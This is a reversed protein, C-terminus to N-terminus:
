AACAMQQATQQAAIEARVQDREAAILKRLGRRDAHATRLDKRSVTEGYRTNHWELWDVDRPCTECSALFARWEVAYRARDAADIAKAWEDRAANEESKLRLECDRQAVKLSKFTRWSQRRREPSDFSAVPKWGKGASLRRVLFRGCKSEYVGAEIRKWTLM